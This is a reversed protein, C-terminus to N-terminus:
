IHKCKGPARPTPGEVRGRVWEAGARTKGAGRGGLIVWTHWDGDPAIQHLPNAWVDWVWPMAALANDSLDDLFAKRRNEPM